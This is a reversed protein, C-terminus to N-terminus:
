KGFLKDVSFLLLAAEQDNNKGLRLGNEDANLRCSTWIRVYAICSDYVRHLIMFQSLQYLLGDRYAGLM